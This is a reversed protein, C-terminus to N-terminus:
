KKKRRVPNIFRVRPFGNLIRKYFVSINSLKERVAKSIEFTDDKNFTNTIRSKLSISENILHKKIDFMINSSIILDMIFAGLLVYEIYRICSISSLVDLFIPNLYNVLIVGAIGFFISNRLCIRGHINVRMNSYDWWRLGFIKEMLYSTLYEVVSCIIFSTCFLMFISDNYPSLFYVMIISCVGYIPCIPGMLFGRYMLKKYEILVDIEEVIWGIFSYVFFLQIMTHISDM